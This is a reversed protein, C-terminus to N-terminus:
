GAFRKCFSTKKINVNEKEKKKELEVFIPLLSLSKQSFRWFLVFSSSEPFRQSSSQIAAGTESVSHASLWDIQKQMKRPLESKSGSIHDRM